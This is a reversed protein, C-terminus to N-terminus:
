VLFKYKGNLKEKVKKEVILSEVVLKTRAIINSQVEEPYERALYFEWVENFIDNLLIDDKTSFTSVVFDEIEDLTINKKM